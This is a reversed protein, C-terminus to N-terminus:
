SSLSMKKVQSCTFRLKIGSIFDSNRELSNFKMYILAVSYLDEDIGKSIEIISGIDSLYEGPIITKLEPTLIIEEGIRFWSEDM